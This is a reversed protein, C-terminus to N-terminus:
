DSIGIIRWTGSQRALIAIAGLRNFRALAYYRGPRAIARLRQPPKGFRRLMERHDLLVLRRLQLGLRRLRGIMGEWAETIGAGRLVTGDASLEKASLRTLVGSDGRMLADFASRATLSAGFPIRSSDRLGDSPAACLLVTLAALRTLMQRMPQHATTGRM